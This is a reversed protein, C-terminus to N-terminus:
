GGSVDGDRPRASGTVRLREREGPFLYLPVTSRGRGAVLNRLNSLVSM